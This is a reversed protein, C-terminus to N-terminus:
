KLDRARIRKVKGNESIILYGDNQKREKILNKLAKRMGKVIKSSFESNQIKSNM